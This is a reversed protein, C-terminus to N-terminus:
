EPRLANEIETRLADLDYTSIALVPRGRELLVERDGHAQAAILEAFGIQQGPIRARDAAAADSEAFIQLYAGTRPGGKHLQGTSHLFRPGWGLTVPIGWARVLAARLDDWAQAGTERDAFVQVAVYGSPEAVARLARLAEPLPSEPDAPSTLVRHTAGPAHSTADSLAAAEPERTGSRALVAQAAAKASEVDPQDFPNVGILRCLLATAAEWILFQAGLPAIVSVDAAGVDISGMGAAGIGLDAPAADAGIGLAILTESRPLPGRAEPDNRRIAIPLVGHGHKGTSEAILQEIWDSLGLAPAREMLACAFREPLGAAIATALRIAPNAAHDAALGPLVAAAEDVLREIDAGALGSPVLGFATLASYRGGVDPDALFVRYGREAGLQELASGPDTVLVIRSVADIGASEFRAEFAALHSRTEITSGSKSSVVVATRSPDAQVIRNVTEPHTSDLITLAAGDRAAIVEPALSSGGMGCLVIRTIGAAALEDRLEHIERVLAPAHLPSRVWGLRIRAESEAEEGWLTADGRMLRSAARDVVLGDGLADAQAARTRIEVSSHATM